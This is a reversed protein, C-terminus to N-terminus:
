MLFAGWALTLVLVTESALLALTANRGASWGANVVAVGIKFAMNVAATGALALAALHAGVANEPLSALTVIATDVDFSGAIFLSLAAATQGFENEAWRVLLAAGGVAVLFGLAPLLHFPKGPAPPKAAATANDFRWAVAAAIWATLTAPAFLVALPLAASPALIFTLLLVRLYMVASALAIGTALPGPEQARLRTALAATVATSSYAGGILATVITGRKQGILRNAIYGALSFGTVFVVVLWLEFPNWAEYPGMRRDPLFPLVAAAIVAYQAIAHVERESLTGVLRHLQSRTALLLTVLAAGAVALAPQGAGALLGLLFTVFATVMTTADRETSARWDRLFAALLGAVIGAAAIAAVATSVLSAIVAVLGGLAGVLTFTRVGAVRTGEAEDRQKWGREIGILLGAAAAALLPLVLSSGLLLDRAQEV